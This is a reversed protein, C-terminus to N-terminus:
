DMLKKIYGQIEFQVSLENVVTSWRNTM